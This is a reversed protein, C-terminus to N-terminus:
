SKGGANFYQFGRELHTLSIRIHECHVKLLNGVSEEPWAAELRLRGRLLFWRAGRGLSRTERGGRHTRRGGAQRGEAMTVKKERSSAM